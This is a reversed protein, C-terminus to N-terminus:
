VRAVQEYKLEQRVNLKQSGQSRLFMNGRDSRKERM